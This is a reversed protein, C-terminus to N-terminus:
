ILNSLKYNRGSKEIVVFFINILLRAEKRYYLNLRLPFIAADSFRITIIVSRCM